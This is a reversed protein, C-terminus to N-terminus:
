WNYWLDKSFRYEDTGAQEIGFDSFVMLKSHPELAQFGNAYGGPIHLLKNDDNSLTFEEPKLKEFDAAWEGPKVIVIKFSGKMVYFWKQEKKHAQWGRVITTDPHEIMYFRRVVKMDFANFFTLRGRTDHHEGGEIIEPIESM